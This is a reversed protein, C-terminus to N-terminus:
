TPRPLSHKPLVNTILRNESVICPILLIYISAIRLNNWTIEQADDISLYNDWIEKLLIYNM